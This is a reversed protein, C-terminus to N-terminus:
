YYFESIVRDSEKFQADTAEEMTRFSKIILTKPYTRYGYESVPNGYYQVSASSYFEQRFDPISNKKIKFIKTCAKGSQTLTPRLAGNILVADYLAFDVTGYVYEYVDQKSICDSCLSKHIDKYDGCQPCYKAREEAILEEESKSSESIVYGETNEIIEVQYSFGRDSTFSAKGDKLIPPTFHTDDLWGGNSWFIKVLKNDKVEVRLTYKSLTLTKLHFYTVTALYTDDKYKHECGYLLLFCILLLLIKIHKM